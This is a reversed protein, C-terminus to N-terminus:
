PTALIKSQAQIFDPVFFSAVLAEDRHRIRITLLIAETKYPNLLLGAYDFRDRRCCFYIRYQSQVSVLQKFIFATPLSLTILLTVPLSAPWLYSVCLILLFYKTKNQKAAKCCKLLLVSETGFMHSSIFKTLAM